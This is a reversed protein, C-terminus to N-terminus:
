ANRVLPLSEEGNVEITHADIAKANGKILDVKKETLLKEIGNRLKDVTIKKQQNMKVSDFESTSNIGYLPDKVKSAHYLESSYILEKTPICGRNLCTGGVKDREILLVKKQYEKAKIAGVYGGPGGGVIILDYKEMM